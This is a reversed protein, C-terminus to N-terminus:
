RIRMLKKTQALPMEEGNNRDLLLSAQLLTCKLCIHHPWISPGPYIVEKQSLRIAIKQVEAALESMIQVTLDESVVDFLFPM